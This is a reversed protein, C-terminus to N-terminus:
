SAANTMRRKGSQYGDEWPQLKTKQLLPGGLSLGMEHETGELMALESGIYLRNIRRDDVPGWRVDIALESGIYLRNIRRDDVPGWRVDYPGTFVDEPLRKNAFPNEYVLVRLV